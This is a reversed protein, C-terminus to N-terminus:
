IGHADPKHKVSSAYDPTMLLPDQRSMFMNQNTTKCCDNSLQFMITTFLKYAEPELDARM